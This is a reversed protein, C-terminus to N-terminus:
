KSKRQTFNVPIVKKPIIEFRYVVQYSYLVKGLMGKLMRHM